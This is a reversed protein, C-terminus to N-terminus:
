QPFDKAFRTVWEMAAEEDTLQRHETELIKNKYHEIHCVQEMMRVSFETNQDKFHVGAEFHNGMKRCWVVIGTAEFEPQKLPIKIHIISDPKIYGKARFCLGGASIDKLYNTEHSVIEELSYEIPIDM